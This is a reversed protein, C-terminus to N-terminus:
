PTQSTAQVDASLEPLRAAVSGLERQFVKPAGIGLRQLLDMIDHLPADIEELRDRTVVYLQGSWPSPVGPVFVLCRGDDLEDMLVGIRSHDDRRVLVGRRRSKDGLGAIGEGMSKILAYGPLASVIASEITRTAWAALTTHALLGALFCVGLLAVIGLLLALAAGALNHVPLYSTWPRIMDYLFSVVKAVLIVLVVIPALVFVGGIATAKIFGFVSLLQTTTQRIMPLWDHSSSPAPQLRGSRYRSARRNGLVALFASTPCQCIVPM